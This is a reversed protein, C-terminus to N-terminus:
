QEKKIQTTCSDIDKAYRDLGDDRWAYSRKETPYLSKLRTVFNKNCVCCLRSKTIPRINVFM